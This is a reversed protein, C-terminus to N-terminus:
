EGQMMLRRSTRRMKFHDIDVGLGMKAVEEEMNLMKMFVLDEMIRM